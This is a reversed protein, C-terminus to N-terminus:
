EEFKYVEDTNPIIITDIWHIHEQLIYENMPSVYLDVITGLKIEKSNSINFTDNDDTIKILFKDNLSDSKIVRYVGFLEGLSQKEEMIIKEDVVIGIFKKEYLSVSVLDGDVITSITTVAQVRKGGELQVISYVTNRIERQALVIGDGIRETKTSCSVILLSVGIALLIHKM